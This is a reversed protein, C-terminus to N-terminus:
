LIFTDFILLFAPVCGLLARSGKQWGVSLRCFYLPHSSNHSTLTQMSVWQTKVLLGEQFSQGGARWLTGQSEPAESGTQLTWKRQLPYQPFPCRAPISASLRSGAQPDHACM